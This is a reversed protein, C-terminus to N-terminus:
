KKLRGNEDFLNEYTLKEPPKDGTIEANVDEPSKSGVRLFLEMNRDQVEKIRNNLDSNQQELSQVSEFIPSVGDSLEALLTTRETSDECTGIRQVLDNFSERTINEPM